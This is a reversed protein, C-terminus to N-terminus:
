AKETNERGEERSTPASWEGEPGEEPAELSGRRQRALWSAAPTDYTRFRM